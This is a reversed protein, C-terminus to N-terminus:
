APPWSWVNWLRDRFLCWIPFEVHHRAASQRTAREIEGRRYRGSVHQLVFAKPKVQSAVQVAEDLTSHLQHRREGAELITAEHLLLECGRVSQPDLPLGDGGFAALTADYEETLSFDERGANAGSANAGSANAGSANAGSANASSANARSDDSNENTERANRNSLRALDRIEQQSLAAYEPKLRRRTEVIKYGLTLRDKIHRTAFTEVRRPHRTVTAASVSTVASSTEVVQQAAHTSAGPHTSMHLPFSQNADLAIWQLDFPLRASTRELYARLDAVYVDDRPHYIALPKLNDGMGGARSWLLSPLGSIHDIHGHTLLVREIAFGGNGLTSACGEGCDVLLHDPKYWVWTSYLAKSYGSLLSCIDVFV